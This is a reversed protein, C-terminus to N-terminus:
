GRMTWDTPSRAPVSTQTSCAPALMFIQIFTTFGLQRAKLILSCEHLGELLATQAWNLHFPAKKGEKTQITYLNNLRWCRNALQSSEPLGPAQEM